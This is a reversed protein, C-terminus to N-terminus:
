IGSAEFAKFVKKSMRSYNMHFTNPMAEIIIKNTYPTNGPKSWRRSVYMWNYFQVYANAKKIYNDKDISLNFKDILKSARKENDLELDRSSALHKKINRVEKGSLWEEVYTLGYYGKLWPECQDIWQTFHSYEHVLIDLFDGRNKACVLEMKEEDFWGSCKINNSLKIYQTPRLIVKIGNEKCHSKVHEIFLLDNKTM